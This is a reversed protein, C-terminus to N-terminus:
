EKKLSFQDFLRGEQDFAKMHLTGGHVTFYCYHFDVRGEAKFFAPTPQFNELSGGGGGSTLHIHGNMAIDVKHKEYLAVLHRANLDGLKSNGKWTDGYDDDDSSYCPHHHYAIKWKADSKALARDLWQYQESGPDLKKNSDISFFDANGYRFQYHYEPKPLSFYRYYHEHNKEHNGICPYVPVRSFLELSPKFLEDTWEKNDPGNDVVDGMHLVFHPRRDWMLRAIKGTVAPNKQTDGIVAFSFAEYPEVATSFTLYKSQVKRGRADTTTARYFYKTGPQLGALPVEHLTGTGDAKVVQQPPYTTGYEVESTGAADTEWMVTMSTRTAFQLYPHVLFQPGDAAPQGPPAADPANQLALVLALVAVCATAGALKALLRSM